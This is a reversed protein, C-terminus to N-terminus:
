LFTKVFEPRGIKQLIFKSIKLNRPNRRNKTCHIILFFSFYVYKALLWKRRKRPRWRVESTRPFTFLISVCLFCRLNCRRSWYTCKVHNYWPTDVHEHTFARSLVRCVIEGPFWRNPDRVSPKVCLGREKWFRNGNRREISRDLKLPFSFFPCLHMRLRRSDRVFSVM